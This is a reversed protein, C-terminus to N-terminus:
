LSNCIQKSIITDDFELTVNEFIQYTEHGKGTIIIIDQSNALKIAIEIAKKRDKEIHV